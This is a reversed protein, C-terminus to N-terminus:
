DIALGSQKWREQASTCVAIAGEDIAGFFGMNKGQSGDGSGRATKAENQEVSRSLYHNLWIHKTSSHDFKPHIYTRVGNEDVTFMGPVLTVTHIDPDVAYRPRVVTKIHLNDQLPGSDDLPYCSNFSVVSGGSPRTRITQGHNAFIRWNISISGIDPGEYRSLFDALSTNHMESYEIFEDADILAMWRHRLGMALLCTNYAFHQQTRYRSPMPDTWNYPLYVVVGADIYSSLLSTATQSTDLEAVNDMIYFRDVQALHHHWAVWELLDHSQNRVALCLAVPSDPFGHRVPLSASIRPLFPHGVSFLSFWSSLPLSSLSSTFAVVVAIIMLVALISVGMGWTRWREGQSSRQGGGIRGRTREPGSLQADSTLHEGEDDTTDAAGVLSYLPSSSPLTPSDM